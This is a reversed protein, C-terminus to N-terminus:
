QKEVLTPGEANGFEDINEVGNEESFSYIATIYGEKFKQLEEETPETRRWYTENEHMILYIM